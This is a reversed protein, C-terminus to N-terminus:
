HAMCAEEYEWKGESEGKDLYEKIKLYNIEQPIDVAVLKPINSLESSCGMVMLEERVPLVLKEDSFYIRITSNGSEEILGNVYLEENIQEVSIIDGLSYSKAYFLINELKYFEGVKSAWAGEIGETNEDINYRFLVKYFKEM